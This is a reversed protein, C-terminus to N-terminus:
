TLAELSKHGISDAFLKGDAGALFVNEYFPSRKQIEILAQEAEGRRDNNCAAAFVELKSLNIADRERSSLWNDLEETTKDVVRAMEDKAQTEV